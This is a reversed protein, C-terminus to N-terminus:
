LNAGQIGFNSLDTGPAMFQAIVENFLNPDGLHYTAPAVYGSPQALQAYATYDLARSSQRVAAKWATYVRPSVAHVTFDMSAFDAGSIEASSGPYVGAKDAEIHLQTVMGTMAFVQGSLRPVWFSNMPSDATLRLAIPTGVPIELTNVTAVRDDPYLFLWKWRLAIVQITVPPVSSSIPRYPDVMHATDWVVVSLAIMAILPIGWGLLQLKAGGTWEPEYRTPRGEGYHFAVYYFATLMITGIIVAFILMGWLIKSQIDAIYGAPSLLQMTGQRILLTFVVGLGVFVPILIRFVPVNSNATVRRHTSHGKAM